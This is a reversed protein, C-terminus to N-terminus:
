KGTSTKAPTMSAPASGNSAMSGRASKADALAKDEDAKAQKKCATRDAGKQDECKEKAVEYNQEAKTKAAEYQAHPTGKRQAELDAKATKEKAKAEKMCVDKANGTQSKCAAKDQKYTDDIQKKEGRYDSSMSAEANKVPHMATSGTPATNTQAPALTAAGLLFAGSLAAYLTTMRM